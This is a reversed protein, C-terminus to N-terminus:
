LCIAELGPWEMLTEAVLHDPHEFSMRKSMDNSLASTYCRVISIIDGRYKLKPALRQMVGTIGDMVSPANLHTASIRSVGYLSIGIRARISVAAMNELQITPVANAWRLTWSWIFSIFDFYGRDKSRQWASAVDRPYRKLSPSYSARATIINISPQM